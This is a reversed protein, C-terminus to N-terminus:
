LYRRVRRTWDKKARNVGKLTAGYVSRSFFRDDM